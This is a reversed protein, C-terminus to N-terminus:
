KPIPKVVHGGQGYADACLLASKRRLTCATHAKFIFFGTTAGGILVPISYPSNCKLKPTSLWQPVYLYLVQRCWRNYIINFDTIINKTNNNELYMWWHKYYNPTIIKTLGYMINDYTPM